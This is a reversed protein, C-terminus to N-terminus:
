KRKTKSARKGPAPRIGTSRKRSEGAAKDSGDYRELLRMSKKLDAVKFVCTTRGGPGGGSTYAYAINIHAKALEEAVSALMGPENPLHIVLVDTETWYDHTKRLVQRIKDSDDGVFRLVGHESSDVLTLAILNVKTKAIATTVQALVGPKNVLFVSFQILVQM